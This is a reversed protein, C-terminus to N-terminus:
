SSARLSEAKRYHHICEELVLSCFHLFLPHWKKISTYTLVCHRHANFLILGYSLECLCGDTTLDTRKLPKIQWKETPQFTLPNEPFKFQNEIFDTM